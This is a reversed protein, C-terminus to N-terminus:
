GAILRLLSKELPSSPTIWQYSAGRCRVQRSTQLIKLHEYLAALPFQLDAHLGEVTQPGMALLQVIAIRRPHSFGITIRRVEDRALESSPRLAKKLAKVLPAASFVQPDPLARYSVFAGM